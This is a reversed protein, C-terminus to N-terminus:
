LRCDAVIIRDHNKLVFQKIARFPRTGFCTSQIARAVYWLVIIGYWEVLGHHPAFARVHGDKAPQKHRVQTDPRGLLESGMADARLHDVQAAKRRNIILRDPSGYFFGTSGHDDLFTGLCAAYTCFDSRSDRLTKAM